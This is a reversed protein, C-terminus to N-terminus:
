GPHSRGVTGSEAARAQDPATSLCPQGSRQGCQASFQPHLPSFAHFLGSLGIIWGDSRHIITVAIHAEVRCCPPVCNLRLLAPLGPHPPPQQHPFCFSEFQSRCPSHLAWCCLHTHFLGSCPPLGVPQKLFLSYLLAQLPLHHLLLPRSPYAPRSTHGAPWLLSKRRPGERYCAHNHVGGLPPHARGWQSAPGSARALGGCWGM